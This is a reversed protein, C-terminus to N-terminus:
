VKGTRYLNVMQAKLTRMITATTGILFPSNVIRAETSRYGFVAEIRQGDETYYDSEIVEGFCTKLQNGVVGKRNDLSNAVNVRHAVVGAWAKM